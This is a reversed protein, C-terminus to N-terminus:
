IFFRVNAVIEWYVKKKSLRSKFKILLDGIKNQITVTHSKRLLTKKKEPSVGINKKWPDVINKKEPIGYYECHKKKKWPDM